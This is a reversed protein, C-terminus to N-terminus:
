ERIFKGSVLLLCQLYVQPRRPFNRNGSGHPLHRASPRPIAKATMRPAPIRRKRRYRDYTTATTSTTINTTTHRTAFRAHQVTAPVPRIVSHFSNMSIPTYQSSHKIITRSVDGDHALSTAPRRRKFKKRSTESSSVSVSFSRRSIHSNSHRAALIAKYNPLIEPTRSLYGSGKTEEATGLNFAIQVVDPHPRWACFSATSETSDCKLQGSM